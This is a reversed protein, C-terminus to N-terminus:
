ELSNKKKLQVQHSKKSPGRPNESGEERKKKEAPTKKSRRPLEAFKCGLRKRGVLM